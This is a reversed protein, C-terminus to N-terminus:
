WGVVDWAAKSERQRMMKMGFGHFSQKYIQFLGGREYDVFLPCQEQLSSDAHVANGKEIFWHWALQVSNNM